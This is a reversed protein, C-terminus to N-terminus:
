VPGLSGRLKRSILSIILERVHIIKVIIGKVCTGLERAFKESIRTTNIDYIEGSKGLEGLTAFRRVIMLSKKM